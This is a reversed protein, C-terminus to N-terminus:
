EITVLPEGFEVPQGDQVHIATVTGNREAPIQNMTKMAEIILLSQGIKVTTGIDIFPPAGPEPALFATGVMPSLQVENSAPKNETIQETNKQSDPSSTNPTPGSHTIVQPSNSTTDSFRQNRVLRVKFEKKEIEIEALDTENLLKALSRIYEQEVSDDNAM